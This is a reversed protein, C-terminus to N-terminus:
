FNQENKQNQVERYLKEQESKRKLAIKYTTVRFTEKSLTVPFKESFYNVCDKYLGESKKTRHTKNNILNNRDYTSEM